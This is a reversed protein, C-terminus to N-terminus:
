YEKKMVTYRFDNSCISCYYLHTCIRDTETYDSTVAAPLSPSYSDYYDSLKGGDTMPQNCNNCYLLKKELGNCVPCILQNAKM